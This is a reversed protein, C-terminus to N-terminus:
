MEVVASMEETSQEPCNGVFVSSEMTLFLPKTLIM